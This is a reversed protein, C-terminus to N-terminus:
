WLHSTSQFARKVSRVSSGSGSDAPNGGSDPDRAGQQREVADLEGQQRQDDEQQGDEPNGVPHAAALNPATRNSGDPRVDRIALQLRDHSTWLTFQGSKQCGKSM